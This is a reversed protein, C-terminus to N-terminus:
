YGIGRIRTASVTFAMEEATTGKVRRILSEPTFPDRNKMLVHIYTFASELNIRVFNIVITVNFLKM